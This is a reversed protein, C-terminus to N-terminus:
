ASPPRDLFSPSSRREGGFVGFSKGVRIPCRIGPVLSRGDEKTARDTRKANPVPAPWLLKTGVFPGGGWSYTSRPAPSRGADEGLSGIGGNHFAQNRRATHPPHMCVCVLPAQASGAPRRLRLLLACRAAARSAPICVCRRGPPWL